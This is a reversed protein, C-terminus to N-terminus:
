RPQVKSAAEVANRVDKRGGDPCYGLVGRGGPSQIAVCGGSVSKCTKGGVFQLYHKPVSLPPDSNPTICTFRLMHISGLLAYNSKESVLRAGLDDPIVVAPAGSSGFKSYNITTPSSHPHNSLFSPAQLFQYLGQYLAFSSFIM